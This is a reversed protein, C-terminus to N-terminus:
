IVAYSLAVVAVLLVAVAIWPAQKPARAAFRARRINTLVLIALAGAILGGIHGGVSIGPVGFTIALNVLILVGIQSQLQSSGRQREVLYLAALVGFIGGSAGVSPTPNGTIRDVVLVGASGGLVSAAYVAVFRPTGIVRELVGGLTVLAWMNFLIHLLGLHIFGSTVLRWWDGQSVFPGYLEGRELIQGSSRGIALGGQLVEGLFVALNLLLIVMTAPTGRMGSGSPAIARMDRVKTSGRCEPCRIGVSASSM